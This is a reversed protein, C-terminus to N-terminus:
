DERGPAILDELDAGQEQMLMAIEKDSGSSIGGAFFARPVDAGTAYTTTLAAEVVDIAMSEVPEGHDELRGSEKRKAALTIYDRIVLKMRALQERAAQKNTDCRPTRTDAAHITHLLRDNHLAILDEYCPLLPALSLDFPNPKGNYTGTMTREGYQYEIALAPYYWKELISLPPDPLSWRESRSRGHRM